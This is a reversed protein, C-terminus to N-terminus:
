KTYIIKNICVFSISLFTWFFSFYFCQKFLPAIPHLIKQKNTLHLFTHAPVVNWDCTFLIWRLSFRDRYCRSFLCNRDFQYKNESYKTHIGELFPRLFDFEAAVDVFNFLFLLLLSFIFYVLPWLICWDFTWVKKTHKSTCLDCSYSLHKLTIRCLKLQLM